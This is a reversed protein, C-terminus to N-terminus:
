VNIKFELTTGPGDENNTLSWANGAIARFWDTGLGPKGGDMGDGNDKVIVFIQDSKHTVSTNVKSANGHRFSNSLGENIVNGIEQAKHGLIGHVSM